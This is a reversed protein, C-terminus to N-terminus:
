RIRSLVRWIISCLADYTSIWTGDEPSAAKKLAAAKSKPLHFLVADTQKHAPHRQKQPPATVRSEQPDLPITFRSHNICMPPLVPPETKNVMADCCGALLKTFTAWGTIDNAYHHSHMNFILGGSIFSAKFSSIEPSNDPHAEPKEGFTMPLNSLISVDGLTSAKFHNKRIDSLSPSATDSSDMYQVVFKVTSDKRKVFAHDGDERKEITGVLHRAQSLAAELGSKLIKVVNRSLNLSGM